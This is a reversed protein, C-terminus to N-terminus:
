RLIMVARSRVGDHEGAVRVYYVGSPLRLGGEVGGLQIRHYGAEMSSDDVFTAVCRGHIDFLRANVFGAMTTRFELTSTPKLPNPSVAPEFFGEKLIFTHSFEGHILGGTSLSGWLELLITATGHPLCPALATMGERTFCSTYEPLGNGDTDGISLSKRTSSPIDVSGCTSNEYHLRVSSPLVEELAFGAEPVAEVQFWTFPNGDPIKTAKAKTAFVRVPLVSTISADTGDQSSLSDPDTVTLTVTFTGGSKYIHAPTPGAGRTGDGFEWLYQLPAGEPDSSQRGDFTIPVDQIGSYPGGAEAVPPANAPLITVRTSCTGQQPVYTEHAEFTMTHAGAQGRTPTWAVTATAEGAVFGTLPTLTAGPPFPYAGFSLQTPCDPDKVTVRFSLPQGERGIIEAPCLIAPARGINDTCGLIYGNDVWDEGLRLVGDGRAGACSSGFSTVVGPPSYCSFPVIALEACGASLRTPLTTVTMRLLHYKGPPLTESGAFGVTLAYDYTVLPESEVMGPMMNVVNTFSMPADGAYLNVTYSNLGAESADQCTVTSGDRNRNTVLYVDVTASSLPPISYSDAGSYLSDGNADLFMYQASATGHGCLAFLLLVIMAARLSPGAPRSCDKTDENM